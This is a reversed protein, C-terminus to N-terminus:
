FLPLTWVFFARSICSASGFRSKQDEM